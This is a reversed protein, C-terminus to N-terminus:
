NLISKWKETEAYEKIVQNRKILLQEFLKKLYFKDVLRGIFGYPCEYDLQDIMIAGNEIAKFHHEHAYSKFDGEVMEDKFSVPSKMMTIKSTFQRTKYLHRAQWTVSENEKILGETVGAIPIEKSEEMSIKHLDISRSLDFVREVPAAIFTTLHIRAM